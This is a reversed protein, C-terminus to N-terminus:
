DECVVLTLLREETSYNIIYRVCIGLQDLFSIDYINDIM